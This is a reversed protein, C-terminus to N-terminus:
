EESSSLSTLCVDSSSVDSSDHLRQKLSLCFYRGFCGGGMFFTAVGPGVVPLRSTAAPGAFSLVVSSILLTTGLVIGPTTIFFNCDGDTQLIDCFNWTAYSLAFFPMACRSLVNVAFAKSDLPSCVFVIVWLAVLVRLVHATLPYTPTGHTILWFLGVPVVYAESFSWKLSGTVDVGRESAARLRRTSIGAKILVQLAIDVEIIRDEIEAMIKKRDDANSCQADYISTFGDRLQSGSEQAHRARVADFEALIFFLLVALHFEQFYLFQDACYFGSYLTWAIDQGVVFAGVLNVAEQLRSGFSCVSLVVFTGMAVNDVLCRRTIAEQVGCFLYFGDCAGGSPWAKLLIDDVDGDLDDYDIHGAFRKLFAPKTFVNPPDSTATLSRLPSGGICTMGGINLKAKSGCLYTWTENRQVELLSFLDFFPCGVNANRLRLHRHHLGITPATLVGFVLGLAIIALCRVVIRVSGCGHPRSAIFITKEWTYAVYAEFGCWMRCYISGTHNPVALMHSASQLAYAFPSRLPESIFGAIDLNQPNSLFCIYAHRQTWPWSHIVKDLMEFLGESWCHTVFLDCKLGQPHLMLAWSMNGARQTIPKIHQDVVTYANPGCTDDEDDFDDLDTPRISGRKVALVVQAKLARLDGLTVCWREPPIRRHLDAGADM